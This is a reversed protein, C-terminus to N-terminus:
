AWSHVKYCVISGSMLEGQFVFYHYDLKQRLLDSVLPFLGDLLLCTQSVPLFPHSCFFVVLM